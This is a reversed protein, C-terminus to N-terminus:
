RKRGQLALLARPMPAIDPTSSVDDPSTDNRPVVLGLRTIDMFIEPNHYTRTVGDGWNIVLRTNEVFEVVTGVITSPSPDDLDDLDDSSSPSILETSDASDFAATNFHWAVIDGPKLIKLEQLNM